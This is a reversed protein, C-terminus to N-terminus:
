FNCFRLKVRNLCPKNKTLTEERLLVLKSFYMLYEVSRSSFSERKKIYLFLLALFIHQVNVTSPTTILSSKFIEYCAWVARMKTSTPTVEVNQALLKGTFDQVTSLTTSPPPPTPHMAKLGALISLNAPFM